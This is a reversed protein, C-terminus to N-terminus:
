WPLRLACVIAGVVATKPYRREGCVSMASVPRRAPAHRTRVTRPSIVGTMAIARGSRITGLTKLAVSRLGNFPMM